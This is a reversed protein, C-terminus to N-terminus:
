PCRLVNDDPASTEDLVITVDDLYVDVMGSHGSYPIGVIVENLRTPFATAGLVGGALAGDIMVSVEGEGTTYRLRTVVCTWRNALLTVPSLAEQMTVGNRLALGAPTLALTHQLYAPEVDEAFSVLVVDDDVSVSTMRIWMRVFVDRPAVATVDMGVANSGEGTTLFRGAGTGRFVTTTTREILDGFTWPPTRDSGGTEFDDCVVTSSPCLVLPAPADFAGTDFSTDARADSAADLPGADSSADAGAEIGGGDLPADNGGDIGGDFTGGMEVCRDRATDCIWGSSCPCPRDNVDLPSFCGASAILLLVLTASGRENSLM